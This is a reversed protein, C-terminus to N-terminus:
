LSLIILNLFILVHSIMHSLDAGDVVKVAGKIINGISPSAAFDM